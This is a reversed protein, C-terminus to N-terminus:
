SCSSTFGDGGQDDQAEILAALASRIQQSLEASQVIGASDLGSGLLSITISASEIVRAAMTRLIEKLAGDAHTARPSANLVAVAKGAFPEFGVLWDLANKMTGTVGHAYEPSAIILTDSLEVSEFFHRVAPSASPSLDPNFLPLDGIGEFLHVEVQPPALDRIARLLAANYSARRLSGCLALCRM